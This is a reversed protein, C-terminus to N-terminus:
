AEPAILADEMTRGLSYYFVNDRSPTLKTVLGRTAHVSYSRFLIPCVRGDDMVMKHLNYYNGTNALAEQCLSLMAADHISGYSLSGWEYFFQTLDMNASLQTQGLYLDFNGYIIADSYESGGFELLEVVLGCDTLMRAIERGARLRLSDDSNLLLKVTKGTMGTDKVAQAFRVSDYTYKSALGANYYPSQPSAPLTASRAYSRYYNEVLLDRDIAYTLASRLQANSFVEGGLNCSLYLFIGNECDWLEFDCRYDAYSDSGPDACVLDLDEFEFMDRIQTASEGKLLTIASDTVVLEADCWWNVRRRLRAGSISTELAYPGTGLPKDAAVEAKKVIPVDLLIPLNETPCDLYITIGGDPSLEMATVHYFRGRYVTSEWATQLSALVDQITLKTGDSFTANDVIYFTYSTMDESRSYRDCLMPEVQYNRDVCFLGQYILSFLARNTFDTCSYPNLTKNPYYVLNLTQEEEAAPVTETPPQTFDALADGTPVHPAREQNCGCLSALLAAACLLAFFRRM